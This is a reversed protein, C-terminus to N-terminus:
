WPQVLFSHTFMVSSEDFLGKAVSVQREASGREEWQDTIRGMMMCLSSFYLNICLIVYRCPGIWTISTPTNYTSRLAASPNQTSRIEASTGGHESLFGVREDKQTEVTQDEHHRCGAGQKRLSPIFLLNSKNLICM